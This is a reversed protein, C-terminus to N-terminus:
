DSIYLRNVDCSTSANEFAVSVKKGAVFATLATALMAKVGDSTVRYAGVSVHFYKPNGTNLCAAPSNVFAVVFSGNPLPYVWKVNDQYWAEAASASTAMVLMAVLSMSRRGSKLSFM